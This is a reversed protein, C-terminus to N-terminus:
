FSYKLAFQILRPNVTTATIWGFTQLSVDTAPNAFQAHNFVNFFEVRFQLTANERIGSVRTTKVLATDFNVQGPGMLIGLGSNGFGTGDGYIGGTPPLAFARANLYGPGGSQGGLRAEVGGATPVNSYTSGPAMQARITVNSFPAQCAGCYITGGRADTVTLPTGGQIVTVGSLNWGGLLKDAIGKQSQFPIDWMYNVVLRQPRYFPSIGYQQKSDAPNNSDLNEYFAGNAQENTFARAYTYAGQVTFGHSFQKRLTVLLSNYKLDGDSGSQQLGSPAFGLYPVRLAANAVTNATIGNIPNQATALQAVNVQRGSDVLHIGHSGAYGLELVWNPAFEYQVNLNYSQVLPTTFNGSMFPYNLNSSAGTAFNVWRTDGWGLPQNLYPTALSAYGLAPGSADLTLSYPPSQEVAHIISNGNVRDYFYGYGGRVVFRNKALPSWAFGFRPAFNNWPAGNKTPGNNSGKLIGTPLAGTYNAPAVFGAYTGTASSTGPVKVTALQSLWLNTLNGYVDSPYGDYEWRVGVNMTLRASVKIDDQFFANADNFRYGHVIGSPPTKVALFTAIINSFLTGNTTGPNGPNCNAPFAGPACGSLGLLFDPFTGFVLQGRNISPFVWPWRIHEYEGGVRISHRGRSWSLQDAWQYQNSVNFDQDLGGGVAFLGTVNIPSILDNEKVLPTIGVQTDSFKLTTDQNAENRQFSIRAENVISNTLLSTLKLVANTNKFLNVGRAGPLCPGFCTFGPLTQEASYYYRAALTNKASLLYDANALYQDETYIAPDIFTAAAYTGIPSSPIYYSGNANKLNLINLAVPNVNSGDCAVQAGGLGIKQTFTPEHCFAQGLAARFGPATRDGLPIPPLTVNSHGSPDVGNKQRTGQYSGFIFFRDKKIPGGLVGGFQNQNLPLKGANNRNEFFGNANLQTNRFFEFLTGHWTNTGSKTVVNVNAGPNRGYGADYLSTQIKFEALTDPSPIGIGSYTGANATGGGGIPTISVGDMQYNNHNTNLGNVSVDQSGNGVAAANNVSANVGAALALIQTYNRTTLPLGAVAREGVVTGLTSTATQIASVEAQVEIQESQTGIELVRDLVPTETVNVKVGNVEAVRFGTASFSVKYTGPRLLTLNYAGNADTRGARAQGTDSNIATVAVNPVASGSPDTVTGTLAGTGATQAVALQAWGISLLIAIIRKACRKKMKM